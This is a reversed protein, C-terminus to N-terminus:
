WEPNPQPIVVAKSKKQLEVLKQKASQVRGRNTLVELTMEMTYSENPQLKVVRGREKEHSHSNPFNIAPELGTVYGNGDPLRSKWVMFYPLNKKVFSLLLGHEGTADILMAHSLGDDDAFPDIFYVVEESNANEADCRNWTALERAAQETRPALRDFPVVIESGAGIFPLGTNIHYLMQFEGPLHFNNTVTDRITFATSDPSMFYSATLELNKFFLRSEKVTGQLEISGDDNSLVEVRSAPTNAIKGHLGYRLQGNADFDPSGNSELGCRVIWECFGDLWGFGSPDCLPVLSPHVPVSAPSNWGLKITDGSNSQTKCEGKWIGMGRTPVVTLSLQSNDLRVLGVGGTGGDNVTDVDVRFKGNTPFDPVLVFDRENQKLTFNKTM